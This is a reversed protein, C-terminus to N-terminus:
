RRYYRYNPYRNYYRIPRLYHHGRNYEHRGRINHPLESGSHNWTEFTQRTSVIGNEERLMGSAASGPNNVSGKVPNWTTIPGLVYSAMRDAPFPDHQYTSCASMTGALLLVTVSRIVLSLTLM